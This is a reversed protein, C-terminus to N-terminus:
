PKCPLTIRLQFHWGSSPKVIHADGGAPRLIGRVISLGLGTGNGLLLADEPDLSKKVHPYFKGSPDPNMPTFVQEFYAEDLGPGNDKVELAVITEGREKEVESAALEILRPNGVGIVAKLSNSIVNIIIALLEGEQMPGVQLGEPVDTAKLDIQYRTAVRAFRGIARECASRLDIMVGTSENDILGMVNTLDLMEQLSRQSEKVQKGLDAFKNRKGPPVNPLLEDIEESISAFSGNLSKVEHAFLLTLTSTSAILRLRLLDRNAIQLSQDMYATLDRLLSLDKAQKKTAGDELVSITKRIARVLKAPRDVASFKKEHKKEIQKRLQEHESEQKRQIWADRHVMAWDIAFRAFDRLQEFADNEVFGMRDMKSKLAKNDENILIQGLFNQSGLLNLLSRNADVGHKEFRKALNFIQENPPKGLRRAKDREIRLWDDNPDGYPYVRFGHHRLQVGGWEKMITDVNHKSVLNINRMQERDAVLIGLKMKTGVIDKFVQDSIFPATERQGQARLVCVAHGDEDVEAELTGWGAELLETRIDVISSNSTLGEAHLFIQFGPDEEYGRRRAGQNAVLVALQRQLSAMGLTTWENTLAGSMTLTVGTKSARVDETTTKVPWATVVTGAKFEGWNFEVTSQEAAFPTSNGRSNAKRATTTLVLKTGLRRCAFRGIGKAGARERGYRPSVNHDVKNTTGIRMWYTRVAERTMGTGDDEITVSPGKTPDNQLKFTITVETADADYANKVLEAIAVHPFTVLREGVESLLASDVTFRETNPDDQAGPDVPQKEDPTM